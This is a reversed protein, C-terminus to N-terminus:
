LFDIEGNMALKILKPNMLDSSKNGLTLVYDFENLNQNIFDKPIQYYFLVGKGFNYLPKQLENNVLMIRGLQIIEEMEQNIGRIGPYEVIIPKEEMEVIDWAIPPIETAYDYLQGIDAILVCYNGTVHKLLSKHKAFAEATLPIMLGNIQGQNLAILHSSRLHNTLNKM